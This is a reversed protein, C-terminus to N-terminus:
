LSYGLSQQITNRHRQQLAKQVAQQADLYEALAEEIVLLDFSTCAEALYSFHTPNSEVLEITKQHLTDLQTECRADASKRLEVVYQAHLQKLQALQAFTLHRITNTLM